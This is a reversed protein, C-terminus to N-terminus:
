IPHLCFHNTWTVSCLLGIQLVTHQTKQICAYPPHHSARFSTVKKSLSHKPNDTQFIFCCQKTTRAESSIAPVPCFHVLSGLPPIMYVKSRTCMLFSWIGLGAVSPLSAWSTWDLEAAEGRFPHVQYIGREEGSTSASLQAAGHSHM